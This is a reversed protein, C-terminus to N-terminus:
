PLISRVSSIAASSTLTWSPTEAAPTLGQVKYALSVSGVSADFFSNILTYGTPTTPSALGTYLDTIVLSCGASPTIPGPAVTTGPNATAGAQQDLPSSLAVGSFAAAVIGGFNLGSVEFHHAAGTTPNPLYFYLLQSPTAGVTYQTGTQWASTSNLNDFSINPSSGNTAVSIQLYNAGVDNIIIVVTTGSGSSTAQSAIVSITGCGSGGGTRRRAIVVEQSSLATVFLLLGAILKSLRM